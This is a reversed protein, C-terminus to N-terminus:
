RITQIAPPSWSGDLVQPTPDYVRLVLSFAGKPAPLWSIDTESPRRASVVITLSGDAGRVLRPTDDGVSYRDIPNAVLSGATNYLTISWFGDAGHPPLDWAPFRIKYSRAGAKALQARYNGTVQGHDLLQQAIGFAPNGTAIRVDRRHQRLVGCGSKAKNPFSGRSGIIM